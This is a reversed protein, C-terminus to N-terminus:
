RSHTRTRSARWLLNLLELVHRRDQDSLGAFSGLMHPLTRPLAGLMDPFREAGTSMLLTFLADITHQRQDYTLKALWENLARNFYQSGPSIDPLQVLNGHEVQWSFPLHQMLGREDSAVVVCREPTELIMGVISSDPVIKVIRDIINTYDQSTVVSEPFGPGDLSYVRRIRSQIAAPANLAAYVALNGGKSHGAPIIPGRWLEAIRRVYAAAYEQAPVPYQFSMNFDEKWGVFSDDTGRFLPMLVGDPRLATVAAFQTQEKLSTYESYAGMKITNFRPNSVAASFLRFTLRPDATGRYGTSANFDRVKLAKGIELLTPGEFPPRFIAKLAALSTWPKFARIRDRVTELRALTSAYTPVIDPMRQYALSALVLADTENYPLETFSATQEAAYDIITAM